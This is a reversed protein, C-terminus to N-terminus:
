PKFGEVLGNMGEDPKILRIHVFGVSELASKIDEYSYNQGGRTGVLMNVAFLAGSAPHTHDSNMIHDRIVLRGGLQLVEFIKRYLEINQEPSNQHIVASLLALDHGTPFENKYFDGAVFSIRDMLGTTALRKQAMKIVEPLDFITARMTTSSELFAQTYTGPGGGIDLLNKSTGTKIAAVIGPAMKSAIAHMGFIFAENEQEDIDFSPGDFDAKGYRVINTLESWRKWGGIPLRMMPIMSTESEKSLVSAIEAPCHYKGENKELLGLGVVANLLLTIGRETVKLRKAIEPASMQDNELLTFVDLEVATLFVRSEQFRSVFSMIEQPKMAVPGEM